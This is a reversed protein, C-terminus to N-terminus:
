SPTLSDSKPSSIRISKRRRLWVSEKSGGTKKLTQTTHLAKEVVLDCVNPFFHLAYFGELCLRASKDLM